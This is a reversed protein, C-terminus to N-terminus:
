RGTLSKKGIVMQYTQFDVGPTTWNAEVQINATEKTMPDAFNFCLWASFSQVSHRSNIRSGRHYWNAIMFGYHVFAHYTRFSEKENTKTVTNVFRKSSCFVACLKISFRFQTRLLHSKFWFLERVVCNNYQPIEILLKKDKAFLFESDVSSYWAIKCM